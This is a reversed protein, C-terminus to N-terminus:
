EIYKLSTGLPLSAHGVIVPELNCWANRIHVHFLLFLLHAKHTALRLAREASTIAKRRVTHSKSPTTDSAVQVSVGVIDVDAHDSTDSAISIARADLAVSEWEESDEDSSVVITQRHITPSTDSATTRPSSQIDASSRDVRRRKIPRHVAPEHSSEVDAESLLDVYVDPVDQRADKANGYSSRRARSAIANLRDQARVQTPPKAPSPRYSRTDTTADRQRSM